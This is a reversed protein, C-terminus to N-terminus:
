RWVWDSRLAPCARTPLRGSCRSRGKPIQNLAPARMICIRWNSGRWRTAAIPQTMGTPSRPRCTPSATLAERRRWASCACREPDHFAAGRQWWLVAESALQADTVTVVRGSGDLTVRDSVSLEDREDLALLRYLILGNLTFAPAFAKQTAQRLLRQATIAQDKSPYNLTAVAKAYAIAPDSEDATQLVALADRPKDALLRARADKLVTATAAPTKEIMDLPIQPPKMGVITENGPGSTVITFSNGSGSRIESVPRDLGRTLSKIADDVPRWAAAFAGSFTLIVLGAFALDIFGRLLLNSRYLSVAFPFFPPRRNDAPLMAQPQTPQAAM